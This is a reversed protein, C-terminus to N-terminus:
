VAVSVAVAATYLQKPWSGVKVRDMIYIFGKADIRAIDGTHFWGESDVDKATAEPNNWYEKMVTPARICLEGSQEVGV